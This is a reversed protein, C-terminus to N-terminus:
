AKRQLNKVAPGHLVEGDLGFRSGHCPCDWSRDTENWGLICGMHTCVASVAHLAGDPDRYGAVNEGDVKLIAAEGPALEDFGKPRRSLWGGVLHGAVHLNEKVFEPGGAVPKIRTADFLRLWPHDRGQILEAILMAAATGNTIGWADFGTAVLYSDGLSSSWGVFPAGDMPSLDMNTWAYAALAGFRDRAFRELDQFAKAEEDPHGPKFGSGVFMLWDQGEEDRHGRLSHRPEEASIYMGDPVRHAEARCMIAPHMHPYAQAYFMGTQGLPMHTAMVVFRARITGHATDVRDPAWDIARTREFVHCGEGPLSVALGKLYKVPHFQAQGDWRMAAAVEFPLGTERTMSAPLGIRAALEVEQELDRVTAAERAYTFAPKESLDCDIDHRRALQLISRLGAENADAYLRAGDEGFKRSLKGYVLNHQSTIKATSRGTVGEGVRGAELLAVRLGQDKLLRATTVGVIGGGIVAVDVELDGSLQPFDRASATAAWYCRREAAETM